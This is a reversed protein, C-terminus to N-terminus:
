FAPSLEIGLPIHDSVGLYPMEIVQGHAVDSLIFDFKLKPNWGPYSKKSNLSKLGAKGFILANFDGMFIVRNGFSRAWRKMRRLQLTNFPPVFSLHATVIVTGDELVAAIAVRPEDPVFMVRQGRPSAVLLPLGFPAKKLNLIEYHVIPVKSLLGVGYSTPIEQLQAYSKHKNAEIYSSGPTGHMTPAFIWYPYGCREAIEEVTKLGNSRDQLHDVEQIALVDAGYSDIADFLNAGEKLPAGSLINWTVLRM